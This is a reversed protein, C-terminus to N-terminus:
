IGKRKEKEAEVEKLYEILMTYFLDREFPFMNELDYKSYKHHQMLAFQMKYFTFLDMHHLM